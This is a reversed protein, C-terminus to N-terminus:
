FAFQAQVREDVPRLKAYELMDRISARKDRWDYFVQEGLLVYHWEAHGRQEPTLTNIRDCWAVAARKKRKVNPTNIQGQAKTEVLYIGDGCRVLFDPCYFAPLGDEKVYRLRTFGHKQENLKCFADVSGDRDATEIFARELGGSRSPYPLRPYICKEVPLSASERLTLKPVESLHRHTVEADATTATEEAELLQRAWVRMIHETVPDVLLVRWNEDAFPDLPQGFLRARIYRDIGDALRAGEEEGEEKLAQWNSLAIVGGATVKRGIDEKPCVAGQVFRFVEDRYSPPIFLDQYRSFDSTAFDRKGEFADRLRDYVILGPAVILFNKTYRPNDPARNANLAQWVMLAQLVWTKGTGTAMKLCYKPYDNKAAGIMQVAQDSGIMVEPAVASYLGKLTAMGLVEHAYIVNLIGAQQGDHFNFERTDKFDEQFWWKLM